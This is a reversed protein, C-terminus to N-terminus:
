DLGKSYKDSTYLDQLYYIASNLNSDLDGKELEKRPDGGTTNAKLLRLWKQLTILHQNYVINNLINYTLATSAIPISKTFLTRNNM